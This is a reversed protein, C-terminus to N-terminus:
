MSDITGSGEQHGTSAVSASSDCHRVKKTGSDADTADDIKNVRM